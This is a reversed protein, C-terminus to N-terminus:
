TKTSWIHYRERPLFKNDSQNIRTSYKHIASISVFFSNFNEPLLQNKLKFMFKALEMKHIDYLKLIKKQKYKPSVSQIIKTHSICRLIKNQIAHLPALLTNCACGWDIISYHLHPCVLAYYLMLLIKTTTIRRIRYFLDSFKFIKRCIYTIHDHWKLKDDIIVGLYKYIHTQVIEFGNIQVSFPENTKSKSLIMYRTKNLNLSLKNSCFWKSVKHLKNNVIAQVNQSNKHSCFLVPTM